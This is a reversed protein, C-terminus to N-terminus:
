AADSSADDPTRLLRRLLAAQEPTPDPLDALIQSIWQQIRDGDM